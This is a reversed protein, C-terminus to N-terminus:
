FLIWRVQVLQTEGRQVFDKAEKWNGNAILVLMQGLTAISDFGSLGASGAVTNHLKTLCERADEPVVIDETQKFDVGM